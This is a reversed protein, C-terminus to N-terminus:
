SPVMPRDRLVKAELAAVAADWDPLDVSDVAAGMKCHGTNPLRPDRSVKHPSHTDLLVVVGPLMVPNEDTPLGGTALVDVGHTYFGQNLLQLQVSYRAYAPDTHIPTGGRM